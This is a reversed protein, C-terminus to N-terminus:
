MIILFLIGSLTTLCSSVLIPPLTSFSRNAFSFTRKTVICISLVYFTFTLVMTETERAVITYAAGMMISWPCLLWLVRTKGRKKVSTWAVLLLIGYYGSQFINHAWLRHLRNHVVHFLDNEEERTGTLQLEVTVACVHIGVGAVWASAFALFWADGWGNAGSRVYRTKKLEKKEEKEGTKSLGLGNRSLEFLSHACIVLLVALSLCALESLPISFLSPTRSDLLPLSIQLLWVVNVCALLAIDEM